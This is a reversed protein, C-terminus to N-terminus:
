IMNVNSFKLFKLHRTTIAQFHTRKIYFNYNRSLARYKRYKEKAPHLLFLGLCNFLLSLNTFLLLCLLELSLHLSLEFLLSQSGLLHPLRKSTGGTFLKCKHVILLNAHFHTKRSCKRILLVIHLEM